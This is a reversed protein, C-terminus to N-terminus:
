ALRIQLGSDVSVSGAGEEGIVARNDVVHMLRWPIVICVEEQLNKLFQHM